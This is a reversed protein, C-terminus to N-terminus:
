CIRRLLEDIADGRQVEGAFMRVFKCNLSSALEIYTSIEDRNKAREKPQRSDLTASSALCVLEVKHSDFLRRTAQPHGALEPIGPLYLEGCLGRLEIGDYGYEAAKSIIAALDWNPCVMSSFGIKM